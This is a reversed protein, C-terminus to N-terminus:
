YRQVKLKIVSDTNLNIGKITLYQLKYIKFM